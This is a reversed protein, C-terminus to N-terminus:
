IEEVKMFTRKDLDWSAIGRIRDIDINNYIVGTEKKYLGNNLCMFNFSKDEYNIEIIKGYKVFPIQGEEPKPCFEFTDGVKLIRKSM